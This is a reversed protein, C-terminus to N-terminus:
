RVNVIRGMEMTVSAFYSRKWNTVLFQGDNTYEPQGVICTTEQYMLPHGIRSKLEKKSKYPVQITMPREM